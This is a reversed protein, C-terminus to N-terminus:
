IAYDSLQKGSALASEVWKPQRGRGTWTDGTAPNRYKPAVKGGKSSAPKGAPSKAGLDAVTIGYQAMLGKIQAVADSLEQKRANEIKRELEAKQALLEQYTSM